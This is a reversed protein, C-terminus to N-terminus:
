KKRFLAEAADLLSQKDDGASKGDTNAQFYECFNAKEKDRVVDASPERCENYAGTDYFKCNKCVHVDARCQDCDQRFGISDVFSLLKGCSHCHVKVEAM